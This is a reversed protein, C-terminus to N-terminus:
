YNDKKGLIFAQAFRLAIYNASGGKYRLTEFRIGIDPMLRGETAFLYGV